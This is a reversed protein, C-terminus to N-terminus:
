GGPPTVSGGGTDGSGPDDGEPLTTSPTAVSGTTQSEGQDDFATVTTGDDSPDGTGQNTEGNTPGDDGCAVAGLFLPTALLLAALGTRLHRV